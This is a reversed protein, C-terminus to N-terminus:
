QEHHLSSTTSGDADRHILRGRAAPLPAPGRGPACTRSCGRSCGSRADCTRPHVPSPCDCTTTSHTAPGSPAGRRWCCAWRRRGRSWRPRASGPPSGAGSSLGGAPSSVAWDPLLTGIAGLLADRRERLQARRQDLVADLQGILVAAALQDLLGVSLQRRALTAGLQAALAADTRLWGVRLGGWVAKSLGGLTITAADPLSAAFPAARRRGPATRRRGRRRRLARGAAM